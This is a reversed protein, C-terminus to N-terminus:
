QGILILRVLIIVFDVSFCKESSEPSSKQEPQRFTLGWCCNKDSIGEM